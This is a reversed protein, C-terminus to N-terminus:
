SSVSCPQSSHAPPSMSPYECLQLDSLRWHVAPAPHPCLGEPSSDVAPADAFRKQLLWATLPTPWAPWAAEILPEGRGSCPAATKVLLYLFSCPQTWYSKVSWFLGCHSFTAGVSQLKNVGQKFYYLNISQLSIHATFYIFIVFAINCLILYICSYLDCFEMKMFKLCSLVM